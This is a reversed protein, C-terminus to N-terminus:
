NFHRLTDQLMSRYSRMASLNAQFSREIVTLDVMEKFLDVNPALVMGSEDALPHGPLSIKKFPTLEDEFVESVQVGVNMKEAGKIGHFPDSSGTQRMIEDFIVARRRYPPNAENGVSNLNSLNAAVIETRQMEAHLGSTAIDFGRFVGQMPNM